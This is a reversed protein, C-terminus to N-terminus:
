LAKRMESSIILSNSLINEICLFVKYGTRGFRGRHQLLSSLKHVLALAAIEFAYHLDEDISIEKITLHNYYGRLFAKARDFWEQNIGDQEECISAFICDAIVYGIDYRRDGWAALEWDILVPEHNKDIIVNDFRLDGHIFSSSEWRNNLDSFLDANDQMLSLFAHFDEGIGRAYQEVSIRVSPSNLWPPLMHPLDELRSKEISYHLKHISAVSEGLKTLITTDPKVGAQLLDSLRGGEVYEYLFAGESTSIGLPTPVRFPSSIAESASHLEALTKYETSVDPFHAAAFKIVFRPHSEAEVICLPRRGYKFEYSVNGGPLCVRNQKLIETAVHSLKQEDVYSPNGTHNEPGICLMLQTLEELNM